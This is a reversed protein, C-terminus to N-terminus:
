RRGEGHRLRERGLNHLKETNSVAEAPDIDLDIEHTRQDSAAVFSVTPTRMMEAMVPPQPMEDVRQTAIIEGNEDTLVVFKTMAVERYKIPLKDRYRIGTDRYQTPLNCDVARWQPDM